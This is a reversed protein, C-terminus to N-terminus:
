SSYFIIMELLCDIFLIVVASLTVYAKLLLYRSVTLYKIMVNQMKSVQAVRKAKM